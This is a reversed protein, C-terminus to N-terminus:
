NIRYRDVRDALRCTQKFLTTAAGLYMRSVEASLITTQLLAEEGAAAVRTTPFAAITALDVGGRPLFNAFLNVEM